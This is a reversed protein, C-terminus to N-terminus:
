FAEWYAHNVEAPVFSNKYRGTQESNELDRPQWFFMTAPILYCHETMQNQEYQSYRYIIPCDRRSKIFGLTWSKISLPSRNFTRDLTYPTNGVYTLPTVHFWWDYKYEWIYSKTFFMFLKLSKLGIRRWEEFAWIHARNYCQSDRQHRRNLNQFINQAENYSQLQTPRFDKFGTIPDESSFSKMAAPAFEIGVIEGDKSIQIKLLSNESLATQLNERIGEEKNESLRAVRGNELLYLEPRQPGESPIFKAIRTTLIEAKLGFSLFLILFTAFNKM